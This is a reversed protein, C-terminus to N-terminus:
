PGLMIRPVCCDSPLHFIVATIQHWFFVFGLLAWLPLLGQAFGPTGGISEMHGAAADLCGIHGASIAPRRYCRDTM